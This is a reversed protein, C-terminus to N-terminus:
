HLAAPLHYPKDCYDPTHFLPFREKSEVKGHGRSAQPLWAIPAPPRYILSLHPRVTNDHVRQREALVRLEKLSYFIEGNLFADRLKSNFNECYGNEWPSGPEVYLPKAGTATLWKSTRLSDILV